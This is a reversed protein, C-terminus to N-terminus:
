AAGGRWPGPERHRMWKVMDRFGGHDIPPVNVFREGDFHTSTGRWRPTSWSCNVRAGLAVVGSVLGLPVTVVRRMKVSSTGTESHPTQVSEVRYRARGVVPPRM